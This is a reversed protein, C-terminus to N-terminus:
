IKYVKTTGHIWGDVPCRSRRAGYCWHSADDRRPELSNIWSELMICNSEEFIEYIELENYGADYLISRLFDVKGVARCASYLRRSCSIDRRQIYTAYCLNMGARLCHFIRRRVALEINDHDEELKVFADIVRICYLEMAESTCKFLGFFGQIYLGQPDHLFTYLPERLNDFYYAKIMKKPPEVSKVENKLSYIDSLPWTDQTQVFGIFHAVIDYTMRCGLRDGGFHGFPNNTSKKLILRVLKVFYPIMLPHCLFLSDVVHWFLSPKQPGWTSISTGPDLGAEVLYELVKLLDGLRTLMRPIDCTVTSLYIGSTLTIYHCEQWVLWLLSPMGSGGDTPMIVDHPTAKGAAFLNRVTTLDGNMCAKIIPANWSVNNYCRLRMDSCASISGMRQQEIFVLYRAQILCNPRIDIKYTTRSTVLPEESTGKDEEARQQFTTTTSQIVMMAFWANVVRKTTTQSIVRPRSVEGLFSEDCYGVSPVSECNRTWDGSLGRARADPTANSVFYKLAMDVSSKLIKASVPDIEADLSEHVAYTVDRCAQRDINIKKGNRSQHALTTVITSISPTSEVLVAALM